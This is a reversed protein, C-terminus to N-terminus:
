VQKESGFIGINDLTGKVKIHTYDTHAHPFVDNFYYDTHNNTKQSFPGADKACTLSQKETM